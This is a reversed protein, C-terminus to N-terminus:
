KEPMTAYQKKPELSSTPHGGGMAALEAEYGRVLDKPDKSVCGDGFTVNRWGKFTEMSATVIGGPRLDDFRVNQVKSKGSLWLGIKPPIKPFVEKFAKDTRGWCGAGGASIRQWCVVLRANSGKAPYGILDGDVITSYQGYGYYMKAGGPTTPIPKKSGEKQAIPLNMWNKYGMGMYADRRLPRDPAGGSVEGEVGWDRCPFQNMGHSCLAGDMLVVKAGKAVSVTAPGTTVFRSDRGVIFSGSQIRVEDTIRVYGIVETSKGPAKDHVLYTAVSRSRRGYRMWLNDENKAQPDYPTVLREDHVKKLKGDAPWDYRLFTDRGGAFVTNRWVTLLGENCIWLNGFISFQGGGEVSLHANRGITVHRCATEKVGGVGMVVRYPEASAPLIVDTDMDPLAKAPKGTAANIWNEVKRGNPEDRRGKVAKTAGDVNWILLRAKPWKQKVFYEDGVLMPWANKNEYQPNGATPSAIIAKVDPLAVNSQEGALLDRPGWLALCIVFAILYITRKM